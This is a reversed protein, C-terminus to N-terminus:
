LRETYRILLKGSKLREQIYSEDDTGGFLVVQAERIMERCKEPQEYFLTLYPEQVEGNWGMRLREEEVPETQIFVFSGKMREYMARCFPIQHHNLYNSVFVFRM